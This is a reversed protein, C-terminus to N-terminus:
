LKSKAKEIAEKIDKFIFDHELVEFMQNKDFDNKLSESIGSLIVTIGKAKFSKIIEKLSQYGTADILPVYR